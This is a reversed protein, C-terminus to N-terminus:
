YIQFMGSIFLPPTVVTQFYQRTQVSYHENNITTTQLPPIYTFTVWKNQTDENEKPKKTKKHKKNLFYNNNYGNEKLIQQIINLEIQKNTTSIPYLNKRNILYNIDTRKTTIKTKYKKNNEM